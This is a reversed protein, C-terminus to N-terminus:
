KPNKTTIITKQKPTFVLYSENKMENQYNQNLLFSKILIGAKWLNSMVNYM